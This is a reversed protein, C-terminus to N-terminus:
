DWQQKDQASASEQCEGRFETEGALESYSLEFYGKRCYGTEALKTEVLNIMVQRKDSNLAVSSASDTQYGEGNEGSGGRDGRGQRDQSGGRGQEERRTGLNEESDGRTGRRKKEGSRHTVSLTFQKSGDDKLETSFEASERMEKSPASSCASLVILSFFTFTLYSQCNM